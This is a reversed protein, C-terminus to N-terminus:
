RVKLGGRVKINPIVSAGNVSFTGSTGSSCNADDDCVFAWYDRTQGADGGVVDYVLNEPDATTFATSSAWSGGGCVQSTLSNTKCIKVKVTEGSDADNWDTIFTVSRNPNTPDPTDSASSVSPAPVSEDAGIDWTNAGTPRTENDIDTTFTASLDSGVNLSSAGTKLHLNESGLTTTTFTAAATVNDLSNAGPSTTDSSANYNSDASWSGVNTYFSSNTNTIALNNKVVVNSANDAVFGYGGSTAPLYVTNNYINIASSWYAAIGYGFAAEQTGSYIFNNYINDSGGTDYHGIGTSSGYYVNDHVLNNRVTSNSESSLRIGNFYQSDQGYDTIELWEVISYDDQVLIVHGATTPDVKAGTGATGTHRQGSAVSLWMYRTADTTSGDITVGATFTSDNYCEGKEVTNATVLNGNRATEWAQITSYNRSSTGITYTNTTQAFAPRIVRDWARALWSKREEIRKALRKDQPVISEDRLDKLAIGHEGETHKLSEFTVAFDKKKIVEDVSLATADLIPHDQGRDRFVEILGDKAIEEETGDKNNKLAKVRSDSTLSAYDIGYERAGELQPTESKVPPRGEKMAQTAEKKNISTFKKILKEREEAAMKPVRVIVYDRYEMDGWPWGMPKVLVVDGDKANGPEDGNQGIKVLVEDYERVTMPPDLVLPYKVAELQKPDHAELILGDTRDSKDSRDWRYHYPIKKGRADIAIPYDLTFLEEGTEKNMVAIYMGGEDRLEIEGVASLNKKLEFEFRKAAQENKIYIFEKVQGDFTHLEVDIGPMVESWRVKNDKAEVRSFDGGRMKTFLQLMGSRDSKDTRDSKNGGVAGFGVQGSAADIKVASKVGAQVTGLVAAIPNRNTQYVYWSEEKERTGMFVLVGAAIVLALSILLAQQFSLHTINKIVRIMDM